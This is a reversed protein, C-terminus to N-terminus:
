KKDAIKKKPKKKPKIGANKVKASLRPAVRHHAQGTKLRKDKM